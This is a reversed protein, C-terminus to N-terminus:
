VKMDISDYIKYNEFVNLALQAKPMYQENIQKEYNNIQGQYHSDIKDNANQIVDSNNLMFNYEGIKKTIESIMQEQNEYTEHWEWKDDIGFEKLDWTANMDWNVDREDNWIQLFSEGSDSYLIGSKNFAADTKRIAASEDMWATRASSADNKAEDLTKGSELGEYVAANYFSTLEKANQVDGDKAMYNVPYDNQIEQVNKQMELVAEQGGFLDYAKEYAQDYDQTQKEKEDPTLEQGLQIKDGELFGDVIKLFDQFSIYNPYAEKIKASQLEDSEKTYTEPIPTYIDAYKEKMEDMKDVQTSTKTSTDYASTAKTATTKNTAYVQSAYSSSNVNM